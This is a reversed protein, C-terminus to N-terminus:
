RSRWAQRTFANTKSTIPRHACRGTGNTKCAPMAALRCQDPSGATTLWRVAAPAVPHFEGSVADWAVPEGGPMWRVAQAGDGSVYFGLAPAAVAEIPTDPLRLGTKRCLWESAREPDEPVDRWDVALGFTRALLAISGRHPAEPSQIATTGAPATPPRGGDAQAQAILMSHQALGNVLAFTPLILLWGIMRWRCHRARAAAIRGDALRIQMALSLALLGSVAIGPLAIRPRQPTVTVRAVGRQYTGLLTERRGDPHLLASPGGNAVVLTPLGARATARHIARQHMRALFPSGLYANNTPNIILGTDADTVARLARPHSADSCILPMLGAATPATSMEPGGLTALHSEAFPIPRHKPWRRVDGGARQARVVSAVSGPSAYRYGHRFQRLGSAEGASWAPSLYGPASSEPWVVLDAGLAQATRQLRAQRARIGEIMGDAIARDREWPKLDTQVVAITRAPFRQGTQSTLQVLLPPLILATTALSVRLLAKRRHWQRKSVRMVAVALLGQFGAILLDAATLGGAQILQLHAPSAPAFVSLSLPMGFQRVVSLLLCLVGLCLIIRQGSTKGDADAAVAGVLAFPVMALCMAALVAATEGSLLPGLAYGLPLGISLLANVIREHRPRNVRSLWPVLWVLGALTLDTPPLAIIGLLGSLLGPM